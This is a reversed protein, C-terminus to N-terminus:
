CGPSASVGPRDRVTRACRYFCYLAVILILHSADNHNFHASSPFRSQQVGGAALAAAIGWALWTVTGDRRSVNAAHIGAAGFAASAGLSFMVLNWLTERTGAELETAFGHWTGGVGAAVVLAIFAACWFSVSVRNRSGMVRILSVACALSVGALLYDTLMTVPTTLEM